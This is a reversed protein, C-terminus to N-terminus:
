LAKNKARENLEGVCLILYKSVYRKVLTDKYKEAMNNSEEIVRRWYEDSFDGDFNKKFFNWIEASAKKYDDIM